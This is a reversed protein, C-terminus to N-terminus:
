PCPEPNPREGGASDTGLSSEACGIRSVLYYFSEMVAPIESDTVSAWYTPSGFCAHNYTFGSPPTRRGRYVGFPGGIGEDSWQITAETGWPRLVTLSAGVPPPPDYPNSPACDCADGVRDGDLDLQDANPTAGCNDLGDRVGDGDTDSWLAEFDQGAVDAAVITVARQPPDFTAFSLAPTVVFEGPPLWTLRYSGAADTVRTRTADGGLTVVAGAVGADGHTVRGTISYTTEPAYYEDAGIDVTYGQVREDGEFDLEPIGPAAANGADLCPSAAALHFDGAAPAAFVPDLAITTSVAPPEGSTAISGVDSHAISATGGAGNEVVVDDADWGTTGWVITNHIEATARPGTLQLSV